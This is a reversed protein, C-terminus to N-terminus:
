KEDSAPMRASRADKFTIMVVAVGAVVTYYSTIFSPFSILFEYACLLQQGTTKTIPTQEDNNGSFGIREIM